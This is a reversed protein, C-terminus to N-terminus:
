EYCVVEEFFSVDGKRHLHLLFFFPSRQLGAIVPVIVSVPVLKGYLCVAVCLRYLGAAGFFKDGFMEPPIGPHVCAPGSFVLYGMGAPIDIVYFRIHDVTVKSFEIASGEAM